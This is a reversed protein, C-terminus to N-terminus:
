SSPEGRPESHIVFPSTLLISVDNWADGIAYQASV